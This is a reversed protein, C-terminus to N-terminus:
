KDALLEYIRAEWYVADTKEQLKALRGCVLRAEEPTSATVPLANYKSSIDAINKNFRNEQGAARSLGRAQELRAQLAKRKDAVMKAASMFMTEGQRLCTIFGDDTVLSWPPSVRGALLKGAQEPSMSVSGGFYLYGFNEPAQYNGGPAWTVGQFKGSTYAYRVHDFMWIDGQRARAGLDSWPFFAEISWSKKWKMAKARWGYTSWEPLSIAADIRKSDAQTGRANVVFKAYGVGQAAPDFYIEACDDQWLKPSDRTIFKERIKEPHKDYNIIALYIGKDNYLMRFETRIKGPGPNAKFYEYYTRARNADAWCPDDLKGDIRPPSQLVPKVEYFVVTRPAGAQAAAAALVALLMVVATGVRM